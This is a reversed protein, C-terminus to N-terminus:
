KCGCVVNLSKKVLLASLMFPPVGGAISAIVDAITTVLTVTDQLDPDHRRECYRWRICVHEHLAPLHAEFFSRGAAVQGDPSFRTESYEPLHQPILSFLDDETMALYREALSRSGITNSM